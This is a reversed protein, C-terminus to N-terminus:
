EQTFDVRRGICRGRRKRYRSKRKLRPITITASFLTGDIIRKIAEETEGVVMSIVQIGNGLLFRVAFDSIAGCILVDVGQERLLISRRITNLNILSHQQRDIVNGDKITVILVESAFDFRPSVRSGFQPIAVKM